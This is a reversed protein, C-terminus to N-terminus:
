IEYGRLGNTAPSRVKHLASIAEYREREVDTMSGNLGQRRAAM